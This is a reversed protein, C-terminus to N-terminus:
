QNTAKATLETAREKRQGSLLDRVRGNRLSANASGRASNLCLYQSFIEIKELDPMGGQIIVTSSHPNYLSTNRPWFHYHFM